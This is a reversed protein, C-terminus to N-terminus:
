TLTLDRHDHHAPCQTTLRVRRRLAAALLLIGDSDLDKAPRRFRAEGPLAASPPQGGM